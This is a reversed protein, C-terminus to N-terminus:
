VVVLLRATPPTGQPTDQPQRGPPDYLVYDPQLITAHEPIRVTWRNQEAPDLMDRPKLVTADFRLLDALVYEIWARHIAAEARLGQQNDLWEEYAARLEQAQATDRVDLGNPFARVLVPMSLFPGSIEVLSLWEAHHQAISTM